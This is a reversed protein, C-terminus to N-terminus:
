YKRHTRRRSIINNNLEIYDEKQYDCFCIILCLFLLFILFGFLLLSTITLIFNM